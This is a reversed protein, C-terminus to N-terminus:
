ISLPEQSTQQAKSVPAYISYDTIQGDIIQINRNVERAQDPDHTVMIITSGEKNIDKLLDMIQRAMLSDLNGTPEDALLIKPEGALARAIAVRQQQGGSLQSPLYAHRSALGVLELAHEIRSRRQKSSLGRYRLPMDVNDYISYDPILNYNQFIFGIKENRLRSLDDDSLGNVSTGDLIYEGENFDDLLGAVNLFTSKGSGSPGTVAVFEGAEVQLNFDRLAHTQITESRYVRSINKMSLM